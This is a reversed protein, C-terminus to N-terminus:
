RGHPHTTVAAILHATETLDPLIVQAGAQRLDEASDRGSAVAVIAAGGDYAATVDHATDGVIVTNSRSFALGYKTFARRQAVTVLNARVGDDEGYAGVEFDFYTDLEFARLKVVAVRRLNGTLVTQIVETQEALAAVAERAGPLVRGRSRLEEVHNEYLRGLETRYAADLADSAEIGHRRLTEAFITQETLGTPDVHHEIPRGTVTEFAQRYLQTGFGRTEILTHDIDWLVLRHEATRVAM